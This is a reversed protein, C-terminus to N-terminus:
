KAKIRKAKATDFWWTEPFGINYEPQIKPIGFRDWWATRIGKSHWQPVVFHNWLLVRDLARTAAVLGDRSKAFIVKDILADITKNKIGILNRSGKRDASGSGWYGRQENGPSLSQGWSGVIIDFDFSDLRNQYQSVDITRVNAKIGLRGLSKIYPLVVREFDPSVLLFEVQMLEGTKVNKLGNKDSKWGAATLLKRAERLNQRISRTDRNVPNSFKETFVEPPLDAKFENLIKLEEGQPLGTAALESKAFYSATRSYQGFFLNKNSWEFDFAHNFARRVRWDTFKSRRTNFVFGQMGAATKTQFVERIVFGDRLGNFNYGTAWNKASNEFRVDFQDGKFAELTITNDRFYEYRIEDFNNKGISVPLDKAWYDKVRGYTISRGPKVDIVRYPGSGLPPKLTTSSFERQAGNEDKGQWYHKPLIPLEGTILPLERNGKQNFSFMVQHPGIKKAGSVNAYYQAYGPHSKKLTELSFIVDEPTVPKGDHWRANARLKYTVSSFDPPFHVSEALLGYQSGPEDASSTLLRDYLTGIGAASRGKVIFPNLSDYTGLASLRLLGGKPANPNVYDFHKFGPKYKLNGFLSLGHRVKDRGEQAYLASQPWLGIVFALLGWILIRSGM